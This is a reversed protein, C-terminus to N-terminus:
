AAQLEVKLTFNGAGEYSRVLIYYFGPTEPKVALVEDASSTYARLDYDKTTPPSDRKIYLDFDVGAPGDLTVGAAAPLDVAFIKKDDTGKLSGKASAALTLQKYTVGSKEKALQVAQGADPRGYGYYPSHGDSDYAGATKDIKVGAQRLIDKVENWHLDPNAALILAAIGAIGPCASSTGGFDETYNGHDDGPPNSADPNLVGPNYGASGARDTTWIGPTQPSPHNFAAHGFDSSPFTCWVSQGFDSYVSRTNRDNCAAVAIVKDYSAYGDYEVNENGNGAAWTIVCGKGGRGQTVAYDIALRTSDPLSVNQQHLGDGPNWWQGDPPGWSCSIVDAGHTAAWEFADAEAQSGLNSVLRIPMLTAEPAVGSAQHRGSACAVGACATGHNESYHRDKPRPNNSNETVDKPHVIKGPFKFEEHDIDVGDDIVAIITNKGQTIEWAKTVNVNANITKNGIKTQQLHWQQPAIDRRAAERILEPHCFEVNENDLLDQAIRFIDLGTGEPAEVFYANKAYRLKKKVTLQHTKLVSSCKQPSLGDAFKVFFNETYIVPAGNGMDKLVRGAFRIDKEKKFIERAQDRLQVLRDKAQRCQLVSVNAEPFQVVPTLQALLKLAKKSTIAAALPKAKKTRVVVLDDAINLQIQTGRKGGYRCAYM